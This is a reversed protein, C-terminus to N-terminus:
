PAMYSCKLSNCIIENQTWKIHNWKTTPANSQMKCTHQMMMCKSAHDILQMISCWAANQHMKICRSAITCKSALDILQMISCKSANQHMKICKSAILWSHSRNLIYHILTLFAFTVRWHAIILNVFICGTHVLELICVDSFACLHLSPSSHLTICCVSFARRELHMRICHFHVRWICWLHM